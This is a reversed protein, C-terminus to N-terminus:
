VEERVRGCENVLTEALAAYKIKVNYRVPALMYIHNCKNIKIYRSTDRERERERYIYLFIDM